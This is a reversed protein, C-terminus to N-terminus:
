GLSTEIQHMPYFSTLFSISGPAPQNTTNTTARGDFLQQAKKRLATKYKYGQAEITWETLRCLSQDSYREGMTHKVKVALFSSYSFFLARKSLITTFATEAVLITSITPSSNFLRQSSDLWDTTPNEFPERLLRGTWSRRWRDREFLLFSSSKHSDLLLILSLRSSSNSLLPLLILLELRELFLIKRLIGNELKQTTNEYQM